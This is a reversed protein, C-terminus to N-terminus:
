SPAYDTPHAETVVTVANSLCVATSKALKSGFAEAETSVKFWMPCLIAFLNVEVTSYSFYRWTFQGTGNYMNAPDVM